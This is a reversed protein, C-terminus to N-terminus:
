CASLPTPPPPDVVAAVPQVVWGGRRHYTAYWTSRDPMMYAKECSTVTYLLVGDRKLDQYSPTIM